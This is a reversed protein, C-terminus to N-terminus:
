RKSRAESAGRHRTQRIHLNPHLEPGAPRVLGQPVPGEPVHVLHTPAQPLSLSHCVRALCGVAGVWASAGPLPLKSHTFPVPSHSSSRSFTTSVSHPEIHSATAGCLGPLTGKLQIVDEGDDVRAGAM